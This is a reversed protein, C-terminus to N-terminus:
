IILDGMQDRMQGVIASPIYNSFEIWSYIGVQRLKEQEQQAEKESSCPIEIREGKWNKFVVSVFISFSYDIM